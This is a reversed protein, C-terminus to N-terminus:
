ADHQGKKRGSAYNPTHVIQVSVPSLASPGCMTSIWLAMVALLHLIHRVALSIAQHRHDQWAEEVDCARCLCSKVRVCLMSLNQNVHGGPTCLVARGEIYATLSSQDRQVHWVCLLIQAMHSSCACLRTVGTGFLINVVGCLLAHAGHNCSTCDHTGEVCPRQLCAIGHSCLHVQLMDVARREEELAEEDDVTEDVASDLAVPPANRKSTDRSSRGEM